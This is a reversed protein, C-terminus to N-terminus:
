AHFVNAVRIAIIVIRRALVNSPTACQRKVLVAKPLLKSQVRNTQVKSM